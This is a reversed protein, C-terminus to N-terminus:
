KSVSTDPAKTKTTPIGWEDEDDNKPAVYKPKV